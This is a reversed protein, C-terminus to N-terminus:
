RSREVRAANRHEDRLAYSRGQRDFNRLPSNISPLSLCRYHIPTWIGLVFAATRASAGFGLFSLVYVILTGASVLDSEQGAYQRQSRGTTLALYKPYEVTDCLQVYGQRNPVSKDCSERNVMNLAVFPRSRNSGRDFLAIYMSVIPITSYKNHLLIEGNDFLGM